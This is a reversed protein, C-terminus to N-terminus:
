LGPPNTHITFALGSAMLCMAIWVFTMIRKINTDKQTPDKIGYNMFIGVIIGGVVLIYNWGNFVSIVGVYFLSNASDALFNPSPRAIEGLIDGALVILLGILFLKLDYSLSWKKAPVAAEPQTATTTAEMAGTYLPPLILVFL